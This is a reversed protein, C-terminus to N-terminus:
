KRGIGPRRRGRSGGEATAVPKVSVDAPATCFTLLETVSLGGSPPSFCSLLSAIAVMPAVNVCFYQPSLRAREIYRLLATDFRPAEGSKSQEASNLAAFFLALDDLRPMLCAQKLEAHPEALACHLAWLDRGDLVTVYGSGSGSVAQGQQSPFAVEGGEQKEQQQQQQQQQQHHHHHHQHMDAAAPNLGTKLHEPEAEDPEIHPLPLSATPGVAHSAPPPQPPKYRGARGAIQRIESATLQRKSMGDFKSLTTFIVRRISLNLGMGIADSAVLVHCGEDDEEDREGEASMAEGGVRGLHVEDLRLEGSWERQQQQQQQEQQQNFRAAQQSRAGPPLAGYVMAARHSSRRGVERQLAHVKKRSFAVLCDGPQLSSLSGLPEGCVVLPALRTYQRVELIDGCEEALQKLLPLAGPDGCVHLTQAQMGLLVRTWGWGRGPDAMMQVEDLVGVEFANVGRSAVASPMLPAMEVTAAVHKAGEVERVEQGTVLKCAVGASLLRESIECALLRLPGCYVGGGQAAKLSELAAHTKGSNTPGLHAVIRRQMARAGPFWTSPHRMDTLHAFPTSPHQQREGQQGQGGPTQRPTNEVHGAGKDEWETVDEDQLAEHPHHHHSMSARQLCPAGSPHCARKQPPQSCTSSPHLPSALSHLTRAHPTSATAACQISVSHQQREFATGIQQPSPSHRQCAPYKPHTAPSASPPAQSSPQRHRGCQCETTHQRECFLTLPQQAHSPPHGQFAMGGASILRHNGERGVWQVLSNILTRLAAGSQNSLAM